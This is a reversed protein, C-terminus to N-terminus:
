NIYDIAVGNTEYLNDAVCSVFFASVKRRLEALTTMMEKNIWMLAM